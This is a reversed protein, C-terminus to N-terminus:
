FLYWQILVYSIRELPIDTYLLIFHFTFYLYQVQFITNIWKGDSDKVVVVLVVVNNHNIM